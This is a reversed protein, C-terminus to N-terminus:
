NYNATIVLPAATGGNATSYTDGPLSGPLTLTAGVTFAVAAGTLGPQVFTFASLNIPNAGATDTLIGGAITMTYAQANEGTITYGGAAGSGAAIANADGTVTRAGASTMVINGGGAGVSVTGFNMVATQALILPAIVNAIATGNFTAASLTSVYASALMAALGIKMYQRQTKM